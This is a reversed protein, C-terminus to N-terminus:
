NSEELKRKKSAEEALKQRHQSQNYKIKMICSQVAMQRKFQLEPLEHREYVSYYLLSCKYSLPTAPIVSMLLYQATGEHLENVIRSKWLPMQNNFYQGITHHSSLFLCLTPLSLYDLLEYWLALNLSWFPSANNAKM